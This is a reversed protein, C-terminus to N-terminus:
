SARARTSKSAVGIREAPFRVTVTTGAGLKSQVDISGSHMIEDARVCELGADEVAEKIISYSDDLNLTRGTRFDTKTGFGQVVFCRKRKTDTM